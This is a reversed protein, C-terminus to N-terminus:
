QAMLYNQQEQVQELWAAPVMVQMYEYERWSYVRGSEDVAELKVLCGDEDYVYRYEDAWSGDELGGIYYIQGTKRGDDDYTYETYDFVAGDDAYRNIQRLMNGQEDYEYETTRKDTEDAVGGSVKVKNGREDYATDYSYTLNDEGDYQRYAVQRGEEDYDYRTVSQVEGGDPSQNVAALVNDNEDYAINTTYSLAGDDDFWRCLHYKVSEGHESNNYHYKAEEPAYVVTIEGVLHREDGVGEWHRVIEGSEAYAYDYEYEIETRYGDSYSDRVSKLRGDDTYVYQLSRTTEGNENLWSGDLLAGATNYRMVKSNDVTGDAAYKVERTLLWVPTTDDAVRGDDGCAALGLALLGCMFMMWLKKM